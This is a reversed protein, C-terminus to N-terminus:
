IAPGSILTINATHTANGAVWTIKVQDGPKYQHLADGLATASDVVASNVRTIVSGATM